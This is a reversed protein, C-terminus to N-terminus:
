LPHLPIQELPITILKAGSDNTSYSMYLENDKLQFGLCYEIPTKEFTFFDSMRSAHTMDRDFCVIVHYYYRRDSCHVRHCLFWIENEVVIGNTSGRLGEFVKPSAIRTDEVFRYNNVKTSSERHGVVVNPYWEYITGLQGNERSFLVWNKEVARETSCTYPSGTFCPAELTYELTGCVVGIQNYGYGRNGTYYIDDGHQHIRIDEIGAYVENDDCTDYNAIIPMGKGELTLPYWYNITRIPPEYVYSGDPQIKYNVARVIVIMTKDRIIFSPTSPVFGEACEDPRMLYRVHANPEGRLNKAYFRLNNWVNTQITTPLMTNLLKRYITTTSVPSGVYYAFISYEYDLAWEYVHPELFLHCHTAIDIANLQRKAFMYMALATEHASTLRYHQILKYINEIRSSIIGSCKLWYGCATEPEGKEMYCNGLRYTSYWVEEDWGKMGIRKKYWMIADDTDGVDCYSNALYFVTRANNPADIHEETLLRIDRRFKDEKSGGDGVDEIYMTNKAMSRETPTTAFDLYEHTAGVYNCEVDRRIFRVNRYSLHSSGQLMYVSDAGNFLDRPSLLSCHFIMDADMLMIYDCEHRTAMIRARELGENRTKGFNVFSTYEVAGPVKHNFFFNEIQQPTTDTSGTDMILFCHIYPIVSQLARIIVNAENRVIMNLCIGTMAFWTGFWKYIHAYFCNKDYESLTTLTNTKTM